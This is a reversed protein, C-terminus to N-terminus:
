DNEVVEVSETNEVMEASYPLERGQSASWWSLVICSAFFIVSLWATIKKVVDGTSTGFLSNGTDGGFAAGLGMSKSEQILIFFCLFVCLLIFLCISLYFLFTM